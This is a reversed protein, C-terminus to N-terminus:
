PTCQTTAPSAPSSPPRPPSPWTSLATGSRTPGRTAAGDVLVRYWATGDLDAREHNVMLPLTGGFPVNKVQYFYTPDVTTDGLGAATVKDFPIFGIGMLLPGNPQFIGSAFDIEELVQDCCVLM